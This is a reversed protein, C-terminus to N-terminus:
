RAGAYGGTQQASVRALKEHKEQQILFRSAFVVGGFFGGTVLSSFAGLGLWYALGADPAVLRTFGMVFIFMGIMGVLVGIATTKVFAKDEEELMQDGDVAPATDM